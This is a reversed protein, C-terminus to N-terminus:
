NTKHAKYISESVFRYIEQLEPQKNLLEIHNNIITEDFRKAPGTQADFPHLDQVKAATEKILPKLIDFSVDNAGLVKEGLYYFHNVFNNVFVASIHLSKRQESNLDYISKSLKKALIRLQELIESSCAELCIPIESFDVDRQKSFTQLPYFVGYKDSHKKLVDMSVSGATHAILKDKLDLKGLVEDIADDKIAGLILDSSLDIKSIENTYSSELLIALDSASKETRSYVQNIKLGNKVLAKGLQTALNGAGILTITHIM